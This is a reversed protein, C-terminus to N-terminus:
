GEKRVISFAVSSGVGTISWIARVSLPNAATEANPDEATPAPVTEPGDDVTLERDGPETIDGFDGADEWAAESTPNASTQLRCRLVTGHGWFGTATLVFTSSGADLVANNSSHLINGPFMSAPVLPGVPPTNTLLGAAAQAAIGRVLNTDLVTSGDGPVVAAPVAGAPHEVPTEPVEVPSTPIVDSESM